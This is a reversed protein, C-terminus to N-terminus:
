PLRDGGGGGGPRIRVIAGGTGPLEGGRQIVVGGPTVQLDVQGPVQGGRGLQGRGMGQLMQQVRETLAQAAEQTANGNRSNRTNRDANGSSGGRQPEVVAFTFEAGDGTLTASEDSVAALLYGDVEEGLLVAFPISDGVQVVALALNGAIATGVIRLNPERQRRNDSSNQVSARESPLLYRDVSPTRNPQFLDQNVADLIEDNSVLPYTIGRLSGEPNAAVRGPPSAPWSVVPVAEVRFAKVVTAGFVVASASFVLGAIGLAMGGFNRM